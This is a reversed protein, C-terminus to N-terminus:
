LHNHALQTRSKLILRENSRQQLVADIDAYELLPHSVAVDRRRHDIQLAHPIAVNLYSQVFATEGSKRLSFHSVDFDCERKRVFVSCGARVSKAKLRRAFSRGLALRPYRMM